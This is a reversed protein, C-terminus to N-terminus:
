PREASRARESKRYEIAGGAGLSEHEMRDLLEEVTVPHAAEDRQALIMTGAATIGGFFLALLGDDLVLNWAVLPGGSLLNMMQLFAPVFLGPVIAGGAGFRLWSIESLRKGRYAVSIFAFFAAGAIAGIFGIRIGMGLGDLLAYGFPIKDILRMVSAVVTGFTGWVAGWVLSNRFTARLRPFKKENPM